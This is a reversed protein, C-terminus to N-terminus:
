YQTLNSGRMSSWSNGNASGSVASGGDGYIYVNYYNTTTSDSNFVWSIGAAVSSNGTVVLKVDRFSGSISSFTVTNASSGLTINALPTFTPSPL